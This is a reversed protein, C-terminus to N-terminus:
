SSFGNIEGHDGPKRPQFWHLLSRLFISLGPDPCSKQQNFPMNNYSKDNDDYPSYLFIIM